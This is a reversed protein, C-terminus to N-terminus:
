SGAVRMMLVIAAPWTSGCKVRSSSSSIFAWCALSNAPQVFASVIASWLFPAAAAAAATRPRESASSAFLPVTNVPIGGTLASSRTLRM